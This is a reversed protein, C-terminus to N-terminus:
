RSNTTKGSGSEGVLGLTEGRYIDFNIDQIARVEDKKGLNFYQELGRVSVLVEKKEDAM